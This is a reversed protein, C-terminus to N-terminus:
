AQGKFFNIIKKIIKEILSEKKIVCLEQNLKRSKFIEGVEKIPLQKQEYEIQNQTLSNKLQSKQENDAMYKLVIYTLISLAENTIQKELRINPDINIQKNKAKKKITEIVDEPIKAVEITNMKNLISNVEIFCINNVM